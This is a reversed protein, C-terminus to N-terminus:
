RLHLANKQSDANGLHGRFNKGILIVQYGLRYRKLIEGDISVSMEHQDLLDLGVFFSNRKVVHVNLM